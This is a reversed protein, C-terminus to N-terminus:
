ENTYPRYTCAIVYSLYRVDIKMYWVGQSQAFGAFNCWFHYLYNLLLIYRYRSWKTWEARQSYAVAKMIHNVYSIQGFNRNINRLLGTDNSKMLTAPSVTYVSMFAYFFLILSYLFAPSAYLYCKRLHGSELVYINFSKRGMLDVRITLFICTWLLLHSLSRLPVLSSLYYYTFWCQSLFQQVWLKYFWWMIPLVYRM